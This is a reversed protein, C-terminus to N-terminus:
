VSIARKYWGYYFREQEPKDKVIGAYYLCRYAQLRQKKVKSAHQITQKGILGDEDIKKFSKSNICQQLIRVARKQGMNVVMDFYTARIEEPLKEAKSPKWYDNYYIVVADDMSLNKIDINPYWRKSIGYKTEGGLDKPDNVYGGEHKLVEKVISDFQQRNDMIIIETGKKSRGM